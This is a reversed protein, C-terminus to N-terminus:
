RKKQKTRGAWSAKRAAAKPGPKPNM